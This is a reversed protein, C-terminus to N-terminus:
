RAPPDHPFHKEESEAAMAQWHYVPKWGLMQKLKACHVLGARGALEGRLDTVHPYHTALLQRSPTRVCVDDAALNFLEFGTRDSQLWALCATAVDRADM